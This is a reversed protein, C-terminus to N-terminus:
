YPYSWDRRELLLLLRASAAPACAPVCLGDDVSWLRHRSGERGCELL